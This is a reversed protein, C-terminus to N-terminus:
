DGCMNSSANENWVRNRLVPSMFGFFYDAEVDRNRSRGGEPAATENKSPAREPCAGAPETM